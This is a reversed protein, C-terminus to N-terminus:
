WSRSEAHSLRGLELAARRESGCAEALAKRMGPAPLDNLSPVNCVRCIGHILATRDHGCVHIETNQLQQLSSIGWASLFRGLAIERSVDELHAWFSIMGLLGETAESNCLTYPHVKMWVSRKRPNNEAPTYTYEQSDEIQERNPNQLRAEM